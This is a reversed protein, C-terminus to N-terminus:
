SMELKCIDNGLHVEDLDGNNNVCDFVAYGLAPIRSAPLVVGQANLYVENHVVSDIKIDNRDELPLCGILNYLQSTPAIYCISKRKLFFVQDHPRDEGTNIPACRLLTNTSIKYESNGRDNVTNQTWFRCPVNEWTKAM